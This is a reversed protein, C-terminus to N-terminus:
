QTAFARAVKMDQKRVMIELGGGIYGIPTIAVKWEPGEDEVRYELKAGAPLCAIGPCHTGVYAKAAALAGGPGARTVAPPQSCSAASILVAIAFM